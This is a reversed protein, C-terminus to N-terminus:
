AAHSRRNLKWRGVFLGLFGLGLLMVTSGGDPVTLILQDQAPLTHNIDGWLNLVSVGYYGNNNQLYNPLSMVLNSFTNNPNAGEGELWWITAQLAAASANGLPGLSYNYGTLTGQAFNLYLWATGKSIPDPNGGSVGGNVAGQSIGYYLSSGPTFHENFEVCFTEFGGNFTTSPAYGMTAPVFDQSSANFEGGIGSQRNGYNLTLQMTAASAMPGFVALSAAGIMLVLFTKNPINTM